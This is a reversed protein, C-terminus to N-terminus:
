FICSFVLFNRVVQLNINEKNGLNAPIYEIKDVQRKLNIIVTM